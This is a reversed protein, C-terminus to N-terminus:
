RIDKFSAIMDDLQFSGEENLSMSNFTYSKNLSSSSQLFESQVGAIVFAPKLVVDLFTVVEDFDISIQPNHSYSHWPSEITSSMLMSLSQASNSGDQITLTASETM